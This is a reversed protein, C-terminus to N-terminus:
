IPFEPSYSSGKELDHVLDCNLSPLAEIGRPRCVTLTLLLPKAVLHVGDASITQQAQCQLHSFKFWLQSMKQIITLPISPVSVSLNSTSSPVTFDSVLLNNFSLPNQPVDHKFKQHIKTKPRTPNPHLQTISLASLSTRQSSSCHAPHILAM